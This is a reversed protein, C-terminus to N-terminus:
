FVQPIHSATIDFVLDCSGLTLLQYRGIVFLQRSSLLTFQLFCLLSVTGSGIYCVYEGSRGKVEGGVAELHQVALNELTNKLM